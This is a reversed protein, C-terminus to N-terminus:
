ISTYDLRGYEAILLADAVAHTIKQKTFLQQAKRKTVNKDGKSLCKLSRQWVQPTVEQFPIKATMLIGLYMGYDKGFKFASASGDRPMSHVKELYAKEIIFCSSSIEDIVDKETMTTRSYTFYDTYPNDISILAIGGSLGPDIGLIYKNM